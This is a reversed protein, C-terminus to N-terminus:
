CLCAYFHMILQSYKIDNKFIKDGSSSKKYNDNNCKIEALNSGFGGSRVFFIFVNIFRTQLYVSLHTSTKKLQHVDTINAHISTSPFADPLLRKEKFICIPVSNSSKNFLTKTNIEVEEDM